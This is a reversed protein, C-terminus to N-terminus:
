YRWGFIGKMQCTLQGLEILLSHVNDNLCTFNPLFCPTIDDTCTNLCGRLMFAFPASWQSESTSSYAGIQTNHRSADPPLPMLPTLLMIIVLKSSQFLQSVHEWKVKVTVGLFQLFM